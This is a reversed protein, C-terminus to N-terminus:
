QGARRDVLSLRHRLQSLLDLDFFWINGVPLEVGIRATILSRGPSASEKPAVPNFAKRLLADLRLTVLEEAHVLKQRPSPERHTNLLIRVPPYPNKFSPV